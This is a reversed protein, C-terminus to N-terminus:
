EADSDSGNSISGFLKALHIGAIAALSCTRGFRELFPNSHEDDGTVASKLSLPRKICLSKFYKCLTHDDSSAVLNACPNHALIGKSESPEFTIKLSLTAEDDEVEELSDRDSADAVGLTCL